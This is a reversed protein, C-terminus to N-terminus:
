YTEIGRFPCYRTDLLSFVVLYLLLPVLLLRLAEYWQDFEKEGPDVSDVVAVFRGVLAVVAVVVILSIVVLGSTDALPVEIGFVALILSILYTLVTGGIASLFGLKIKHRPQAVGYTYAALMLLLPGFCLCLVSTSSETYREWPGLTWSATLFGSVSAIIPATVTARCRKSMTIGVILLLFAAMGPAFFEGLGSKRSSLSWTFGAAAVLCLTLFAAKKAVVKTAERCRPLESPQSLVPNNM